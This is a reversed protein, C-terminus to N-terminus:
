NEYNRKQTILLVQLIVLNVETGLEVKEKPISQLLYDASKELAHNKIM